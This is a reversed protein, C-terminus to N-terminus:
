SSGLRTHKSRTIGFKKLRRRLSTTPINLERAVASANGGFRDFLEAIVQRESDATMARLSIASSQSAGGRIELPLDAVDITGSKCLIALREALNRLERANGPWTHRKLAGIAAATFNLKDPGAFVDSFHRLLIDIDGLRQRLPPVRIEVTNVRYLLDQRFKGIKILQSLDQNTAAIVRVDVTQTTNSGVMEFQKQELARLLKAQTGVPMDGIEDLFLTGRDAAEFKGRRYSVGTAVGKEIGFLESELLTGELTACNVCVFPAERRSSTDHIMRALIEKGTGSEGQILTSADSAAILPIRGLIDLCAPDSTVFTTGIGHERLLRMNALNQNHQSEAVRSQTLAVAIFDAIAQTIENDRSSYLGPISRHDLYLVGKLQGQVVLPICIISLINLAVVSKYLRTVDNHVADDIILPKAEEYVSKIVRQSIASIDELSQGDCDASAEIRLQKSHSDALFLVGRESGTLSIAYDLLQRAISRTDHLSNLLGAVHTLIHSTANDEDRATSMNSLREQFSEMLNRNSLSDALFIGEQLFKAALKTNGAVEYHRAVQEATVTAAYFMGALRYNVFAAKLEGIDVGHRRERRSGYAALHHRLAITTRSESRELHEKLKRFKAVTEDALEPRQTLVFLLSAAAGSIYSCGVYEELMSTYREIDFPEKGEACDLQLSLFAADLFHVRDGRPDILTQAECLLKRSRAYAGQWFFRIALYLLSRGLLWSASISAAISRARELNLLAERCNGSRLYAWGLNLYARALGAVDGRTSQLAFDRAITEIADKHRCQLSLSASLNHCVWSQKGVDHLAELDRLSSTLHRVASRYLGLDSCVLGLNIRLAQRASLGVHGRSRRLGDLFVARARRLQGESMYMCGVANAAIARRTHMGLRAALEEIRFLRERTNAQRGGTYRLWLQKVIIQTRHRDLGSSKAIRFAENLIDWNTQSEGGLVHLDAMQIMLSCRKRPSLRSSDLAAQSHAAAEPPRGLKRYVEALKAHVAGSLTQADGNDTLDCYDAVQGLAARCKHFQRRVKFRLAQRLLAQWEGSARQGTNGPNIVSAIQYFESIRADHLHVFFFEGYRSIKSTMIWNRLLKAKKRFTLSSAQILDQILENPIGSIRADNLIVDAVQSVVGRRHATHTRYRARVLNWAIRNDSDSVEVGLETAHDALLRGLSQPRDQYHSQTLENVIPVFIELGSQVSTETLPKATMGSELSERVSRSRSSEHPVLLNRLMVGLSFHDSQPLVIENRLIEPAIHEPTGFLRNDPRSGVKTMLDFDTLLARPAGCGKIILWNSLKLDGHVFGMAHIFDVVNFMQPLLAPYLEKLTDSSLEILEKSPIFPFVVSLGEDDEVLRLPALINPHKLSQLRFYSQRLLAAIEERPLCGQLAPRKVLVERPGQSDVVQYTDVLNGRTLSRLNNLM